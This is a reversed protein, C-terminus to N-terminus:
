WGTRNVPVYPMGTFHLHLIVLSRAPCMASVCVGDGQGVFHAHRRRMAARFAIGAAHRTVLIAALLLTFTLMRFSMTEFLTEPFDCFFLLSMVALDIVTAALCATVLHARIMEVTTQNM